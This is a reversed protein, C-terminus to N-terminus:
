KIFLYQSKQVTCISSDEICNLWNTITNVFWICNYMNIFEAEIKKFIIWYWKWYGTHRQKGSETMSTVLYSHWFGCQNHYFLWKSMETDALFFGFWLFYNRYWFNLINLAITRDNFELLRMQLWFLKLMLWLSNLTCLMLRHRYRLGNSNPM